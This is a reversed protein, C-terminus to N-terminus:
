PVMWSFELISESALPAILQMRDASSNEVTKRTTNHVHSDLHGLIGYEGAATLPRNLLVRFEQGRM